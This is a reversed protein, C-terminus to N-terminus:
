QETVMDGVPESTWRIPQVKSYLNILFKKLFCCYWSISSFRKIVTTTKPAPFNLIVSVKEPDNRLGQQEVVFGLFKSLLILM